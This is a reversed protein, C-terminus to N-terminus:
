NHSYQIQHLNRYVGGTREILESHSGEEVIRGESLVVIRDARKVTSLRHAIVFTTRGEMLRDLALQVYSESQSDLSSTAEDLILIPANKYLARAISIRQREGGSLRGGREGVRAFIGEPMTRVHDLIYADQLCQTVRGADLPLGAAVNNAITDDFLFVDQTVLAMQFRIDALRMERIDVNGIEIAGKTPDFFRLLLNMLTSKGSGSPGVIAIMEGRRVQLNLSKLVETEHYGFRVDKFNIASWSSPWNSPNPSENIKQPYALLDFVRKGSAVTHQLRVHADQLKKIPAQFLGLVFIFSVFDGPTSKGHIVQNGVFLLIGSLVAAALLEFVPGSLEERSLIKRRTHLFEDSTAEFKKQQIKELRFAKVIRIGDLTEKLTGIISENSSQMLRSYKRVSRGLSRSALILVPLIMLTILTLQWNTYFLYALLAVANIPERIVDALLTLGLQVWNVDNTTKSILEGSPHDMHFHLSIETFKKQLANRIDVSVRDGTYRLLYMHAFRVIGSALYIGVIILPAQYLMAANKNVLIDDVVIKVLKAIAIGLGSLMVGLVLTFIITGRYPRLFPLLPKLSDM